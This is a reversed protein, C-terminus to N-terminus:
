LRRTAQFLYGKLYYTEPVFPDIPHDASQKFFRAVRLAKGADRAAPLVAQMLRNEDIHFSCSFLALHGGDELMKLSRLCLEKYGALASEVADRKKVFSPPDLIILDAKEGSKELDKLKDFANAEVFDL